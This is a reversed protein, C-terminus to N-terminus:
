LLWYLLGILLALPTGVWILAALVIDLGSMGPTPDIFPPWNEEM